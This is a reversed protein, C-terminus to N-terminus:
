ERAHRGGTARQLIVSLKEGLSLDVFWSRVERQSVTSRRQIVRRKGLMRPLLGVAEFVGAALRPAVLMRFLVKSWYLGIFVLDAIFMGLRDNKVMMLLHNRVMDKKVRALGEGGSGGREHWAV